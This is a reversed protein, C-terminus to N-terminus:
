AGEMEGVARRAPSWLWERRMAWKWRNIPLECDESQGAASGKDKMKNATIVTGNHIDNFELNIKVQLATQQIEYVLVLLEGSSNFTLRQQWM